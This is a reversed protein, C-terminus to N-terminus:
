VMKLLELLETSSDVPLCISRGSVVTNEIFIFLQKSRKKAEIETM